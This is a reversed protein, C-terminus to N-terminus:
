LLLAITGAAAAVVAAWWVPTREDPGGAWGPRLVGVSAAVTLLCFGALAAVNGPWVGVRVVAIGWSLSQTAGLWCLAFWFTRRPTFEM